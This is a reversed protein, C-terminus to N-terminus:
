SCRQLNLVSLELWQCTYMLIHKNKCLNSSSSIDLFLPEPLFPPAVAPLDKKCDKKMQKRVTYRVKHYLHQPSICNEIIVM